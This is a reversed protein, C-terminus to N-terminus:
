LTDIWLLAWCPIALANYDVHVRVDFTFGNTPGSSIQLRKQANESSIRTSIQWIRHLHLLVHDNLSSFLILDALINLHVKLIYLCHHSYLLLKGCVGHPGPRRNLLLSFYGKDLPKTTRSLHSGLLNRSDYCTPAMVSLKIQTEQLESYCLASVIGLDHTQIGPFVLVSLFTFTCRSYFRLDSQIFADAM